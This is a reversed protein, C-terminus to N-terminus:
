GKMAMTRTLCEPKKEPKMNFVWSYGIKVSHFMTFGSWQGRIVIMGQLRRCSTRSGHGLRATPAPLLRPSRLTDMKSTEHLESKGYSMKSSKLKSPEWNQNTLDCDPSEEPIIQAAKELGNPHSQYNCGESVLVRPCRPCRVLNHRFDDSFGSPVDGLFPPKKAFIM